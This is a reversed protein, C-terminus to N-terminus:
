PAIASPSNTPVNQSHTTTVKFSEVLEVRCQKMTVNIYEKILMSPTTIIPKQM